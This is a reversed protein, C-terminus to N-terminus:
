VQYYPPTLALDLSACFLGVVFLLDDPKIYDVVRETGDELRVVTIPGSGDRHEIAAVIYGQSALEGCYQSCVYPTLEDTGTCGYLPVAAYRYTTRGGGLGHSFVILPFSQDPEDVLTRTSNSGSEVVPGSKSMDQEMKGKEDKTLVDREIKDAL